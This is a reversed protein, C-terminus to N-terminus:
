WGPRSFAAKQGGHDPPVISKSAAARGLAQPGPNAAAVGCPRGQQAVEIRGAPLRLKRPQQEVEIRAEVEAHELGPAGRA